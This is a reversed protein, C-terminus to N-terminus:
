AEAATSATASVRASSSSTASSNRVPRAAKRARSRSEAIACKVTAASKARDHPARPMPAHPPVARARPPRPGRAPVRRGRAAEGHELFEDAGGAAVLLRQAGFGVRHLGLQVRVSVVEGQRAAVAIASSSTRSTPSSSATVFTVKARPRCYRKLTSGSDARSHKM